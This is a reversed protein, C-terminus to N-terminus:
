KNAKKLIQLFLEGLKTDEKIKSVFGTILTNAIQEATIKDYADPTNALIAKYDEDAEMEKVTSKFKEEAEVDRWIMELKSKVIAKAEKKKAEDSDSIVNAERLQKSFSRRQATIKDSLNSREVSPIPDIEVGELVDLQREAEKATVSTDKSLEVFGRTLTGAWFYKIVDGLGNELSYKDVDFEKKQVIASMVRDRSTDMKVILIPTAQQQYFNLEASKRGGRFATLAIGLIQIAREGNTIGIASGVGLETIDALFSTTSRRTQIDNAFQEYNYDIVGAFRDIVDNRIRKAQSQYKEVDSTTQNCTISDGSENYDFGRVYCDYRKQDKNFDAAISNVVTEVTKKDPTNKPCGTLFVVAYLILVIIFLKKMAM